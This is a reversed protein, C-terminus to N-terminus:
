LGKVRIIDDSFENPNWRSRANVTISKEQGYGLGDEIQSFPSGRKDWGALDPRGKPELIEMEFM